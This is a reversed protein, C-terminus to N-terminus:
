PRPFNECPCLLRAYDHPNTIFSHRYYIELQTKQEIRIGPMTGMRPLAHLPLLFRSLSRFIYKGSLPQHYLYEHSWFRRRVHRLPSHPHEHAALAKIGFLYWPFWHMELTSVGLCSEYSWTKTRTATRPLIRDIPVSCKCSTPCQNLCSWFVMEHLLDNQLDNLPRRVWNRGLILKHVFPLRHSSRESWVSPLVAYAPISISHACIIHSSSGSLIITPSVFIMSSMYASVTVSSVLWRLRPRFSSVFSGFQINTKSKAWSCFNIM